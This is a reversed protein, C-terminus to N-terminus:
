YGRSVAVGYWKAASSNYIFGLFDKKNAGTSLTPVPVDAGWLFIANYTLARSGTADQTVEILIRQGDTPNTPSGLARTAGVGSTTLLRFHNGLSADIAVTSADTLTVPTTIVKVFTALGTFTPSALPAKLALDSVLSTVDSEAHTHSTAAKTADAADMQQKTVAHMASAADAPLAIPVGFSRAM